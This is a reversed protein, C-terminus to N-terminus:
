SSLATFGHYAIKAGWLFAALSAAGVRSTLIHLVIGAGQHWKKSGAYFLQSFYTLAFAVASLFVGFVFTLM